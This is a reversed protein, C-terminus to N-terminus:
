QAAVPMYIEASDLVKPVGTGAAPYQLGGTVLVSGDNLRVCAARHRPAQLTGDGGSVQPGVPQRIVLDARVLEAQHASFLNRSADQWAGGAILVSGDELLVSCSDARKQSLRGVNAVTAAGPDILTVEDTTQSYDPASAWSTVGGATLITDDRMRVAIHHARPSPLHALTPAQDARYTPDEVYDNASPSFVLGSIQSTVAGTGDRGGILVVGGLAAGHQANARAVAVADTLPGSHLRQAVDRVAGSSPDFFSVTDYPQVGSSDPTGQGGALVVYGTKLDVATAQHERAPSVVPPTVISWAGNMFLELPRIAGAAPNATADQPGEGGALLVGAGLPSSIALAAHGARKQSPGATLLSFDGTQPDFLEAEDHYQLKATAPDLTYGGTILVRGDGLLTMAHGARPTRLHTCAAGEADGTLTFADVSRLFLRLHVDGPGLADFKGSDARARLRGTADRAEVTVRRGTGISINPLQASLSSFPVADPTVPKIGDGTVRFVLSTVGATPNRSQDLATAGPCARTVLQVEIGLVGPACGAAVVLCISAARM